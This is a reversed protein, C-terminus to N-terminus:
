EDRSLVGNNVRVRDGQRFGPDNEFQLAQTAGSSSYRVVVEYREGRKM